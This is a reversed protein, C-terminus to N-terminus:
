GRGEPPRERSYPALDPEGCDRLISRRAEDRLRLARDWVDGATGEAAIPKGVTVRVPHRRPMWSYARLVDRTGRLAVPVVPVGAEVATVFAGLRFPLLGPTRDFTGEPFFLLSRGSEVARLTSQMAEAATTRPEREVFVTGLRLLVARLLRSRALERKAVFGFDAPLAGALVLGDFYSAHNSVFVCPRGAPRLRELGRITVPLRVARTFFAFAAQLMRRRGGGRPLVVLVLWVPPVMAGFLTWTCAAWSLEVVRRWRRRLGPLLGWVVLRAVQWAVTRSKRAVGRQEYMQRTASRRIKGSSTKLVTRPPALVVEDPPSDLREGVVQRIQHRIEERRGEDEERTEALVVLRETGSEPGPSGFVAVCGKRV